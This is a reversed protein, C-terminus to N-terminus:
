LYASSLEEQQSDTQGDIRLGSEEGAGDDGKALCAASAEKSEPQPMAADADKTHTAADLAHEFKNHEPNSEVM